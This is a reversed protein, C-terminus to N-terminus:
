FIINIYKDKIMRIISRNVPTDIFSVTRPWLKESAIEKGWEKALEWEVLLCHFYVIDKPLTAFWSTYEIEIYKFKENTLYESTRYISIKNNVIIYDTWLIWTYDIWNIKVLATPNPNNVYINNNRIDCIKFYEKKDSVNFDGFMSTILPLTADLYFQIQKEEFISISELWLKLKVDKITWIAM